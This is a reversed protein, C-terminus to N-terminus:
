LTTSNLRKKSPYSLQFAPRLRRYVYRIYKRLIRQSSNRKLHNLLMVRSKVLGEELKIVSLFILQFLQENSCPFSLRWLSEHPRRQIAAVFVAM